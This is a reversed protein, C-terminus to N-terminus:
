IIKYKLLIQKLREKGNAYSFYSNFADVVEARGVKSDLMQELATRFTEPTDYSKFVDKSIMPEYGRASVKHALVPMGWRLGDMCRIKIGGGLSIPCIYYDGLKLVEDMDKPSPIIEVNLDDCLSILEKSPNRGAIILHSQPITEKLIPYYEMLWPKLSKKTQDFSLDGTIIFNVSEKSTTNYPKDPHSSFDFTGVLEYIATPDYFEKFLEIDSSTLCLNLDSKQIVEKEAKAVAKLQATKWLSRCNDRVFEYEYNHHITVIKTGTAKFKDVLGQSAQTGSFVVVDFSGPILLSKPLDHLFNLHGCLMRLGKGIKTYNNEIPIFTTVRNSLYKPDKGYKHPYVLTLEDALEALSNIFSRSGNAGGGNGSLYIREIFLVKM